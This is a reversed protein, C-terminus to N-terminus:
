GTLSALEYIFDRNDEEMKKIEIYNDGYLFLKDEDGEKVEVNTIKSSKIKLKDIISSTLKKAKVDKVMDGDLARFRFIQRSPDTCRYTLNGNNDKLLNDVAFRAVGKQGDLLHNKTFLEDIKDGFKEENIDLPTMNIINNTEIKVPKANKAIDDITDRSHSFIDKYIDNSTQLKINEQLIENKEKEKILDYIKIDKNRIIEKLKLIENNRQEIIKRMDEEEQIITYESLLKCNNDHRKRIKPDMQLLCAECEYLDKKIDKNVTEQILLCYKTRKQHNQLSYKNTFINNCFKCEM